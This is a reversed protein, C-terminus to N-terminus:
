IRSGPGPLKTWQSKSGLIPGLFPGFLQWKQSWKQSWNKINKPSWKPTWFRGLILWCPMWFGDWLAMIAVLFSKSFQQKTNTKATFRSCWAEWSLELVALFGGLFGGFPRCSGKWFFPEIKSETKVLFIVGFQAWFRSWFHDLCQFQMQRVIINKITQNQHSNTILTFAFLQNQRCNWPKLRNSPRGLDSFWLPSIGDMSKKAGFYPGFITWFTTMKPVM